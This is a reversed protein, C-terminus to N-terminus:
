ARIQNLTDAAIGELSAFFSPSSSTGAFFIAPGNTQPRGWKLWFSASGQKRNGVSSPTFTLVQNTGYKFKLSKKILLASSENHLGTVGGLGARAVM